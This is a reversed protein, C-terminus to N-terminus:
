AVEGDWDRLIYFRTNKDLLYWKSVPFITIQTEEEVEKFESPSLEPIM